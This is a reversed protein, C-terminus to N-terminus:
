NTSQVCAGVCVCEDVVGNIVGKEQFRCHISLFYIFRLAFKAAKMPNIPNRLGLLAIWQAKYTIAKNQRNIKKPSLSFFFFNIKLSKKAM